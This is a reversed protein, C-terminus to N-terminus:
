FTRRKSRDPPFRESDQVSRTPSRSSQPPGNGDELVGFGVGRKELVILASIEGERKQILSLARWLSMWTHKKKRRTLRGTPLHRRAWSKFKSSALSCRGERQPHGSKKEM